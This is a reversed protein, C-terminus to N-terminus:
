PADPLVEAFKDKRFFVVSPEQADRIQFSFGVYEGQLDGIAEEKRAEPVVVFDQNLTKPWVNSNHYGIRYFDGLIWPIPYYSDLLITGSIGYNSPNRRALELIPETLVSIEPFTQVYVYPETHDTFNRFNLKLSSAYSVSVAVLWLAIAAGRLPARLRGIIGGAVLYFPWLFAIICWPTKYSIVSYALLLGGAYIAIFRLHAPCRPLCAMCAALGLLAPWEYRAMLAIWYYNLPGILDYSTKSHGGHETGTEFWALYTKWLGSVGDWNQFTGSYFFVVAFIGLGSYVALDRLSWRRVAPLLSGEGPVIKNWLMLFPWALIACGIQILYTEKTLVMGTVGAILLGLDRAEGRKWLGLFGLLFLLNFLVLWSEHISYRSFFVFAPSVALALAALISGTRGIYPHFRLIVWVAAIGALISPLRLAWLSRGFLNQSVFVTYFHLPGHYNTPDYRYFGSKRMQDAFWGNIGEDFHAPKIDIAWWRLAAALILIGISIWLFPSLSPRM